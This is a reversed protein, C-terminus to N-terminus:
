GDMQLILLGGNTGADKRDEFVAYEYTIQTLEGSGDKYWLNEDNGTYIKGFNETATPATNIEAFSLSGDITLAENPQDTGIGVNGPDRYINM